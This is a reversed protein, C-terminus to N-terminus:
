ASGREVVKFALEWLKASIAHIDEIGRGGVVPLRLTEDPMGEITFRHHLTEVKSKFELAFSSEVKQYFPLLRTWRATLQTEMQAPNFALKGARHYECAEFFDGDNANILEKMRASTMNDIQEATYKPAPPTGMRRVFDLLELSLRMADIQLPTLPLDPRTSLLKELRIVKNGTEAHEIQLKSRADIEKLYLNNNRDAEAKLNATESDEPLVLRGHESREVTREPERNYSYTVRLRKPKNSLPDTPVFNKGGVVFNHNEVDVVLSDGSIIKPLFEAVDRTDGGAQWARYDAAIIVLKSPQKNRFWARVNAIARKIQAWYFGILGSGLGVSIWIAGSAIKQASVQELGILICCFDVIGLLVLSPFPRNVNGDSAMLERLLSNM